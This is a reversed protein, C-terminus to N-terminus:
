NPFFEKLSESLAMRSFALVDYLSLVNVRQQYTKSHPQTVINIFIKTICWSRVNILIRVMSCRRKLMEKKKRM